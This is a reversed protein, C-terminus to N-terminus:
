AISCRSTIFFAQFIPTFLWSLLSFPDRSPLETPNLPIGRRRRRADAPATVRRAAPIQSGGVRHLGGVVLAVLLLFGLSLLRTRPSM